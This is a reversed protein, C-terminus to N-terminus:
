ALLPHTMLDFHLTFVHLIYGSEADTWQKLMKLSMTEAKNKVTWEWKKNWGKKESM